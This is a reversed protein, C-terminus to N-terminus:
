EDSRGVDMNIYVFFLKQNRLLEKRRSVPSSSTTYQEQDIRM